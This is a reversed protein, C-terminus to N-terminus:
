LVSPDARYQNRPRRFDTKGVAGACGESETRRIKKLLALPQEPPIYQLTYHMIVLSANSINTETIDECRLRSIIKPNNPLSTLNERCVNITTEPNDVGIVKCRTDIRDHVSILSTGLSYGLDYVRSVPQSYKAGLVGTM